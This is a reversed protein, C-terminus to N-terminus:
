QVHNDKRQIKRHELTNGNNTYHEIHRTRDDVDQVKILTMLTAITPALFGVVTFIVTASNKGLFALALITLIGVISLSVIATVITTLRDYSKM